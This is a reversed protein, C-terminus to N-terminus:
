DRRALGFAVDKAVSRLHMKRDHVNRYHGAVVNKAVRALAVIRNSSAYVGDRGEVQALARGVFDAVKQRDFAPFLSEADAPIQAVAAVMGRTAQCHRASIRRLLDLSPKNRRGAGYLNKGHQRYAVLPTGIEVTDGAIQGIFCIWRDHAIATTDAPMLHLLARRFVMSFGFFTGWPTYHMPPRIATDGIGQGFFGIGNGERDILDAPHAIVSVRPNDMFEACAALKNEYWVDDQDCFAIWDGSARRAAALFNEGFGLAPRNQIRVVPIDTRAAFADVIASTGDTSADDSIVIEFPRLTQRALSDLQQELFEQGNHTALVISILPM